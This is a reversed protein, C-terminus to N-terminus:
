EKIIKKSYVLKTGDLLEIQYVGISWNSTNITATNQGNLAKNYVTAGNAATVKVSVKTSLLSGLQINVFDKVPNPAITIKYTNVPIIPTVCAVAYNLTIDPYTFSTDAGMTHKIRYTVTGINASTITDKFNYNKLAFAGATATLNKVNTFATEAPLKRELQYTSNGNDKASFDINVRCTNIAATNTYLRKLAIVFAKKMNPIGYGFRGDPASFQHGAEQTINIIGMNNLEPFAQWLDTILGAMNPNSFSTGSGSTPSGGLSMITTSVGQSTVNPKIKGSFNPGWGSSSAIAGNVNCSGVAVISDGDAPVSVYKYDVFAGSGNGNNGASNCVIIGKKAALDGGITMMATNGDRKPYTYDFIANDFDIYGLSTSFVDAGISDALEAAALWNQEEVPYESAVDETRYLYFNAKPASGIMSNPKNAGIISLCFFGHSDDENVSAENAVFDWTGKIQNNIRLSDIGPNTLHTNFGADMIAITMNNGLFGYDHLFQGNHLNIQGFSNGYNLNVNQNDLTHATEQPLPTQTFQLKEQSLLSNSGPFLKAALGNTNAVFSFSNIKTIAAPDTTKIAVQNLWKSYNLITVNPVLRISDLYRPTIPLDTSDVAISYRTRRSISKASLYTAPNAITHPTGGKNKLRVIYRTFQAQSYNHAICCFVLIPLIRKMIVLKSLSFAL